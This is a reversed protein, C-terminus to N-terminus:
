SASPHNKTLSKKQFVGLAQFQQIAWQISDKALAHCAPQRPGKVSKKDFFILKLVLGALPARNKGKAM